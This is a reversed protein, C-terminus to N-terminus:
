RYPAIAAASKPTSATGSFNSILRATSVSASRSSRGSAIRALLVDEMETVASAAIVLRGSRKTPMCKM